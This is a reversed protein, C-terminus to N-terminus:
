MEFRVRVTPCHFGSPDPLAGIVLVDRITENNGPAWEIFQCYTLNFSRVSPWPQIGRGVTAYRAHNPVSTQPLQNMGGNIIGEGLYLAVVLRCMIWAPISNFCLCSQDRAQTEWEKEMCTRIMGM